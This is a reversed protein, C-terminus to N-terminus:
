KGSSQRGQLEKEWEKRTEELEKLLAERRAKEEPPLGDPIKVPGSPMWPPDDMNSGRTNKYRVPEM